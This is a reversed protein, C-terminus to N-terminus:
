VQPPDTLFQRYLSPPNQTLLERHLAQAEAREGCERLALWQWARAETMSIGVSDGDRLVGTLRQFEQAAKTADRGAIAPRFLLSQGRVLLVYPAMPDQERAQDLLNASRRGYRFARLFSVTGARYAWLGSLLALERASGDSISSPIDSVVAPDETLPFLRYRVLWEQAQTDAQELLRHLGQADQQAYLTQVSDAFPTILTALLCLVM